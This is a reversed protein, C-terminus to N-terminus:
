LGGLLRARIDLFGVDFWDSCTSWELGDRNLFKQMIRHVDVVRCASVHGGGNLDRVRRHQFGLWPLGPGLMHAREEQVIGGLPSMPIGFEGVKKFLVRKSQPVPEKVRGRQWRLPWLSVADVLCCRLVFQKQERVLQVFNFPVVHEFKEQARRVWCPWRPEALGHLQAVQLVFVGHRIQLRLRTSSPRLRRLDM